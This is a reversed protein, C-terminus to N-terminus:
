RSKKEPYHHKLATRVAAASPLGLKSAIKAYTRGQDRLRKMEQLTERPIERRRGKPKRTLDRVFDRLEKRAIEGAEPGATWRIESYNLWLLLLVRFDFLGSSSRPHQAEAEKILTDLLRKAREADRQEQSTLPGKRSAKHLGDAILQRAAALDEAASTTSHFHAEIAEGVKKMLAAFSRFEVERLKAKTRRGARSKGKRTKM